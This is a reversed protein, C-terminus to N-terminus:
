FSDSIHILDKYERFIQLDNSNMIDDIKSKIENVDRKNKKSVPIFKIMVTFPQIKKSMDTIYLNCKLDVLIFLPTKEKSPVKTQKYQINLEKLSNELSLVMEDFSGEPGNFMVVHDESSWKFMWLPILTFMIIFILISVLGLDIGLDVDRLLVFGVLYISAIFCLTMLASVILSAILTVRRSTRWWGDRSEIFEKM